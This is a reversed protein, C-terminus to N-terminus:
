GQSGGAAVAPAGRQPSRPGAVTSRRRPVPARPSLPAGAGTARSAAAPEEAAFGIPTALQRVKDQYFRDPDDPLGGVMAKLNAELLERVEGVIPAGRSEDSTEPRDLWEYFAHWCACLKSGNSLTIKRVERHNALGGGPYWAVVNDMWEVFRAKEDDFGTTKTGDKLTVKEALPKTLERFALEFGPQLRARLRECVLYFTQPTPPPIEVLASGLIREGDNSKINRPFNDVALLAREGTWAYKSEFVMVMTRRTKVTTGKFWVQGDAAPHDDDNLREGLRDSGGVYWIAWGVFVESGDPEVRFVQTLILYFGSMRSLRQFDEQSMDLRMGNSDKKNRRWFVGFVDGMCVALTITEWTHGAADARGDPDRFCAAEAPGVLHKVGQERLVKVVELVKPLAVDRGDTGLLAHVDSMGRWLECMERPHAEAAAKRFAAVDVDSPPMMGRGLSSLDGVFIEDQEPVPPTHSAMKTTARARKKADARATKLEARADGPEAHELSIVEAVLIDAAKRLPYSCVFEVLVDTYVCGGEVVRKLWVAGCHLKKFGALVARPEGRLRAKAYKRQRPGGSKSLPRQRVNGCDRLLVSSEDASNNLLMAEQAYVASVGRVAEPDVGLERAAATQTRPRDFQVILELTDPVLAGNDDVLPRVVVLGCHEDTHIIDVFAENSDFGEGHLAVYTFQVRVHSFSKKKERLREAAAQVLDQASAYSALGSGPRHAAGIAYKM